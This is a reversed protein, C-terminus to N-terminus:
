ESSRLVKRSPSKCLPADHTSEVGKTVEAPIEEDPLAVLFTPVGQYHEGQPADQFVQESDFKQPAALVRTIISLM